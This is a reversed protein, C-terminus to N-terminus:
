GAWRLKGGIRGGPCGRQPDEDTRGISGCPQEREGVHIILRHGIGLRITIRPVEPSIHVDGFVRVGPVTHEDSIPGVSHAVHEVAGALRDQHALSSAEDVCTGQAPAILLPIQRIVGPEGLWLVLVFVAGTSGKAPPSVLPPVDVFRKQSGPRNRCDEDQLCVSEAHAIARTMNM